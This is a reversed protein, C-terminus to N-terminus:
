SSMRRRTRLNGHYLITTKWKGSRRPFPSRILKHFFDDVVYVLRNKNFINCIKNRTFFQGFYKWL